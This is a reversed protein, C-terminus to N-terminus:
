KGFWSTTTPMTEAEQLDGYGKALIGTADGLTPKPVRSSPRVATARDLRIAMTPIAAVSSHKPARPRPGLLRGALAAKEEARVGGCGAPPAGATFEGAGDARPWNCPDLPSGCVTFPGRPRPVELLESLDVASPVTIGGVPASSHSTIGDGLPVPRLVSALMVHGLALSQQATPVTISCHFPSYQANVPYGTDGREDTVQTLEVSQQATPASGPWAWLTMSCNLPVVHDTSPELGFPPPREDTVQM